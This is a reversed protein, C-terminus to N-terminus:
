KPRISLLPIPSNNVLTRANPGLFVKSSTEGQETMVGIMDANIESAYEITKKTLDDSTVNQVAFNVKNEELYQIARKTNSDVKLKM